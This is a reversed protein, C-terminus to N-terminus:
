LLCGSLIPSAFAPPPGPPQPSPLGPCRGCPWARWPSWSRWPFWCPGSLFLFLCMQARLLPAAAAAGRCAQRVWGRCCEQDQCWTPVRHGLLGRSLVTGDWGCWVLGSPSLAGSELCASSLHWAWEQEWLKLSLRLKSRYAALVHWPSGGGLALGPCAMPLRCGSLGGNVCHM